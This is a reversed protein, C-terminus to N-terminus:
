VVIKGTSVNQKVPPILTPLTDCSPLVTFINEGWSAWVASVASLFTVLLSFTEWEAGSQSREVM